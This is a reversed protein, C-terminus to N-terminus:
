PIIQRSLEEKEPAVPVFKCMTSQFGQDIGRSELEMFMKQNM